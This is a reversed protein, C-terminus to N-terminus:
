FAASSFALLVLLVSLSNHRQSMQSSSYVCRYNSYFLLLVPSLSAFLGCTCPTQQANYDKRRFSIGGTSLSPVSEQCISLLVSCCTPTCQTLPHTSCISEASYLQPQPGTRWHPSSPPALPAPIFLLDLYCVKLFCFTM